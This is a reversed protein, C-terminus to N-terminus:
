SAVGAENAPVGGRSRLLCGTSHGGRRGRRGRAELHLEASPGTRSEVAEFIQQDQKATVWKISLAENM